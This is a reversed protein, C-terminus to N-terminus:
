EFILEFDSLVMEFVMKEGAKPPSFISGWRSDFIYIISLIFSEACGCLLPSSSVEFAREGCISCTSLARSLWGVDMYVLSNCANQNYIKAM